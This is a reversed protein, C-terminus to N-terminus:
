ATHLYEAPRWSVGLYNSALLVNFVYSSPHVPDVVKTNTVVGREHVQNIGIVVEVIGCMAAPRSLVGSRKGFSGVKPCTLGPMDRQALVGQWTTVDQAPPGRPVDLVM